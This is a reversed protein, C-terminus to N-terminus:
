KIKKYCYFTLKQLFTLGKSKAIWKRCVGKMNLSNTWGTASGSGSWSYVPSAMKVPVEDKKNFIINNTRM